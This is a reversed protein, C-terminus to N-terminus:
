RGILTNRQKRRQQSTQILCKRRRRHAQCPCEKQWQGGVPPPPIEELLESHLAVEVELPQVENHRWVKQYEAMLTDLTAVGGAVGGM